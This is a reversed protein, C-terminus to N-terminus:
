KCAVLKSVDWCFSSGNDLNTIKITTFYFSVQEGPNDRSSEDSDEGKLEYSAIMASTLIVTMLPKFFGTKTDPVLQTLTLQPIVTGQVLNKFLIASCADFAKSIQVQSLQSKMSTFTASASAMTGGLSWDLVSITGCTSGFGDLTVHTQAQLSSAALMFLFTVLLARKL